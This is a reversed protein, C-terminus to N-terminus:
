GTQAFMQDLASKVNTQQADTLLKGVDSALEAKLSAAQEAATAGGSVAEVGFADVIQADTMQQMDSNIRSLKYIGDRLNDLGTRLIRGLPKSEGDFKYFAM